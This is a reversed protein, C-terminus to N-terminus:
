ERNDMWSPAQFYRGEQQPIGLCIGQESMVWRTQYQLCTVLWLPLRCNEFRNVTAM